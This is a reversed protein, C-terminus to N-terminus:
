GRTSRSFTSGRTSSTPMEFAKKTAHKGLSNVLNMAADTDVKTFDYEQSLNNLLSLFDQSTDKSFEYGVLASGSTTDFGSELFKPPM